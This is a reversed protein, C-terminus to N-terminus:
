SVDMSSSGGGISTMGNMSEILQKSAQFTKVVTDFTEEDLKFGGAHMITNRHMRVGQEGDHLRQFNEWIDQRWGLGDPSGCVAVNGIAKWTRLLNFQNVDCSKSSKVVNCHGDLNGMYVKAMEWPTSAWLHAVSQYWRIQTDPAQAEIMAEKLKKCMGCAIRSFNDKDDAKTAGCECPTNSNISGNRLLNVFDGISACPSKALMSKAQKLRGKTKGDLEAEKFVGDVTNEEEITRITAKYEEVEDLEPQLLELARSVIRKHASRVLRDMAPAIADMVSDMEEVARYWQQQGLDQLSRWDIPGVVFPTGRLGEFTNIGERRIVQAADIMGIGTLANVLKDHVEPKCVEEWPWGADDALCVYAILLKLHKVAPAEANSRDASRVRPSTRPRADRCIVVDEFFTVKVEKPKIGVVSDYNGHLNEAMKILAKAIARAEKSAREVRMRLSPYLHSDDYISRMLSHRKPLYEM